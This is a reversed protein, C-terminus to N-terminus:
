NIHGSVPAIRGPEAGELASFEAWIPLHDSVELAQELSLNFQRLFDFAGAKGAFEVTAAGPFVIDDLMRSGDTTTPVGVLALRSGMSLCATSKPTEALLTVWCFGIMRAAVM